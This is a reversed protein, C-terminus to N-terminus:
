HCTGGVSPIRIRDCQDADCHDAAQQESSARGFEEVANLAVRMVCSLQIPRDRIEPQAVQKFELKKRPHSQM